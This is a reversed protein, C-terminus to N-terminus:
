EAKVATMEIEVRAGLPLEKVGVCARAPYPEELFSGYVTNVTAFNSVDTLYIRAKVVDSFSLAAAGLIAQLNRMVQETEAEISGDNLLRGEPTLAVQGSIELLRGVEIAQSYSGVAAPAKETSIARRM